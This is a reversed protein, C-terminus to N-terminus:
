DSFQQAGAGALLGNGDGKGQKARRYIGARSACSLYRNVFDHAPLRSSNLLSRADYHICKREELRRKAESLKAEWFCGDTSATV